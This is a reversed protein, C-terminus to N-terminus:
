AGGGAVLGTLQDMMRGLSFKDRVFAQARGSAERRWKRRDLARLVAAALAEASDEAVLLGTVEPQMTESVGGVDYAIVPVGAAQAEILVNPLGETSSSLVFLSLAGLKHQLDAVHGPFHVRGHLGLERAYAQAGPRLAGDGFMVFHVDPRLAAVRAAMELWRRPRKVEVFRMATGVLPAGEPVRLRARQQGAAARADEAGFSPFDYGNHVRVARDHDPRGMWDLYDQVCVEACGVLVVEPREMLARYAEAAGRIHVHAGLQSPRMNHTHLVIRPVGALLAAFGACLNPHDLWAHVALPRDRLLREYVAQTRQALSEPLWAIPEAPPERPPTLTEIEHAGAGTLPLCAGSPAGERFNYLYLKTDAFRGSDRYGKYSLAMIREAGAGALSGGVMVLGKREGPKFEAAPATAVLHRFVAGPTSVHTFAAPDAAAQDLSAGLRQFLREASAIQSALKSGPAAVARAAQLTIADRGWVGQELALWAREKVIAPDAPRDELAASYAALAKAPHGQLKHLRAMWLHRDPSAEALRLYRERAQAKVADDAQGRRLAQKILLALPLDLGPRRLAERALREAADLRGTQLLMRLLPEAAEGREGHLHLAHLALDEAAAREGLKLMMAVLRALGEPPPGQEMLSLTLTLAASLDRDAELAQCLRNLAPLDSPDAEVAAAHLQRALDERGAAALLRALSRGHAPDRTERILRAADAALAPLDLDDRGAKLERVQGALSPPPIAAASM